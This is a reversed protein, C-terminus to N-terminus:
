NTQIAFKIRRTEPLGHTIPENRFDDDLYLHNRWDDEFDIATAHVRYFKTGAYGGNPDIFPLAPLNTELDRGHLVACEGWDILNSSSEFTYVRNTPEAIAIRPWGNSEWGELRLSPVAAVATCLAAAQACASLLRIVGQM